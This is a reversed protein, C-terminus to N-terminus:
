SNRRWFPPWKTETVTRYITIYLSRKVMHHYWDNPLSPCNMDNTSLLITGKSLDRSCNYWKIMQFLFSAVIYGCYCITLDRHVHLPSQVVHLTPFWVASRSSVTLCWNNMLIRILDSVIFLSPAKTSCEFYRNDTMFIWPHTVPSLKTVLLTKIMNAVRNLSQINEMIIIGRGKIVPRFKTDNQTTVNQM